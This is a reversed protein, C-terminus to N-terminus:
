RGFGFAGSVTPDVEPNEGLFREHRFIGSEKDYEESYFIGWSNAFIISGKSIRWRRYEEEEMAAHPVGSGAAPNWQL